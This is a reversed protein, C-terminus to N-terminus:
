TQLQGALRELTARDFLGTSYELVGALRGEESGLALLLDFKALGTELDLIETSIEPLRPVAPDDQVTLMVQFLPTRGPNRGPALEEVLKEFPLDQHAHAELTAERARRILERFGPGGGLDLRLVLTNVFLGILPELELRERNAAPTGVLVDEQGSWRSLLAQFGALLVMFPTATERQGLAELASALRDPLQFRLHAGRSDRVAHRPRDTPLELAAPAGELAARWFGLLGELVEGRLWERQWVAFDAYQMPLPPLLPPRGERCAGYLEALEGLFIDISWGDAAIHHFNLALIHERAGLRLLAARVMRGSTLDFPRATEERLLRGWAEGREGAPLGRLDIVPLEFPTWPVVRQVPRGDIELFATRLAEHRRVIEGLSAAFAPGDLDGELRVAAPMNYLASDPEFRDLFWLREQAFSLPLGAEAEEPVPVPLPAAATRAPPGATEIEAALARVTTAEFLRRLPLEVGFLARIRSLVRTALLSHGGLEFFDDGAGVGPVALVEEWIGALIGEAATAPAEWARASRGAEPAMRELARRDVKGNPTLPLSGLEVFAAPVMHEPLTRALHRRLDAAAPVEREPLPTVFAVLRPNGAGVALVAAGQLAPHRVLAAEIEGPEIRFGRVKVQQDARGLFELDGSALWRVLDGTRYLRGGPTEGFPDPVYREATVGPRGLYGRGLTGGLFLEGPVGAPALNGSPDLVFASRGPLPRGIPVSGGEPRDQVASVTATVVAETPGYGNLLASRRLPTSPWLRPIDPPMAEGGALVLRLPLDDGDDAAEVSHRVVQQLYAPALDLVTLRRDRVLPLLRAPDILESEPFVVTAGGLLPALVQDISLDFSWSATALVRDGGRLGLHDVMTELHRAAMGHEVAVGKPRGSSGSTYIVYALNGPLAGGSSLEEEVVEPLTDLCLVEIGPWAPVVGRLSERTLLLKAGADELLFALRERPYASDLPLYVGGAELIALLGVVGLPSRPMCLGVPVEPGAGLERLRRALGRARAVLERYSLSEEASELAVADPMLAARAAILEHLCREGGEPETATRSWALVERRETEPLFPLEWLPRLPDAVAGALLTRFREVIREVTARDFLDLDHELVARMGGATEKLNLSLDFKSTATDVELPVMRFDPMELPEAPTNQLSLMVQFLPTRSPDRRPALEEVLKEFPLDQHAYAGLTVERARRTLENFGPNGSLDLRLVLTNVFFGILPETEFRNRNAVPSGAAVDEGGGLRCLLAQFGALLVMFTTARERLAMAKLGASVDPPLSFSLTGGHDTRVAPRPRDTPLDLAAPLGALTRRWWALQGKLVDGQLWDRQWVAFDAYQIPLEPLPSPRGARFAQYLAPLERLFVGLSWGDAAIHHFTLAVVHESGGLRLLAVRLSRGSALDFARRAEERLHRQQEAERAGTPLGSLDIVPAAWPPWPRIRQVPRGEVEVFSTRLAEHRRVIEGIAAAFAPVDLDGEIRVAGPINYLASGPEFRDLFWLREQAFSLPLEAPRPLRRFPAAQPRDAGLEELERALGAVTPTEFIRRLAVEVGFVERVRSALQTALLSHGGLAFFDDHVGVRERRLVEGWIGALLEEVLTRPAVFGEGVGIAEPALRELARRDVKGNSTLPLADLFVFGAPVMYDPLSAQLATRLALAEPAGETALYAVLQRGEGEGRVLVVAERVGPQAALAAEIEGLEIRFGRIKVQQDIRGLYDLEGSVRRRALDGTRYLRAGPDGGFPDPVFRAATLEPRGLYGWALGAGGVHLEGPVGVPVPEGRRNLVSLSLDPIPVGIPSGPAELDAKGLPRYTVHVTTETIGYMNVLRPREEGHREWWPALSRPELAEGGFIVLRLSLEGEEEVRLLQRFASPTQNLVTVGERALLRHLEEPSRSVWYPVVVLRGGYLLAGWIEWVSFDFAHSHFLTWVDEPGPAFWEETAAFLRVVNSHPILTGKPTGTSGSTYIIYALHDPGVELGLDEGSEGALDAFSEATLVVRAGSDALMFAVREAPYVPDIPLYAAGAKLIGLLGVVLDLSRELHLGVVSEPGVGLRALRRAVQNARRNLEGYSLTEGEFRVAPAGPRRAAVAEFLRHLPQEVPFVALSPQALLQRREEVTLLPLESFAREPEAVAGELLTQLQGALRELTARDFLGTSYELVGALRGEESGLALLLDFKALGTEAKLLETSLGPLELAVPDNRLTFMLQFLPTRGPDRGPALEEVLKEFPLDQHAHAELTAERARRVLEHFGPSGALDLRLVLSNVFFGILPELELRERNAAPTGVLVDEQGSWRSLLAQFGALLVMFPTAAERRALAELDAGLRDPLHFGLHAGRSDRTARRPRDTPLELAAPAGELATRWFGLLGELVEGQLWERQWVAFDAYQLPLAPLRPPRGERFAGYLEALERLFVDISWGD